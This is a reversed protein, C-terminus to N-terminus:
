TLDRLGDSTLKGGFALFALGIGSLGATVCSLVRILPLGGILLLLTDAVLFGVVASMVLSPLLLWSLQMGFQSLGGFLAVYAPYSKPNTVGMILGARLSSAPQVPPGQLDTKWTLARWGMRILYLGCCLSLVASIRPGVSSVGLIAALALTSWLVDGAIEGAFFRLGQRRGGIAVTTFLALMGPGPTLISLFAALATSLHLTLPM